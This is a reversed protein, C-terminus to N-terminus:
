IDLFSRIARAQEAKIEDKRALKEKAQKALTSIVSKKIWVYSTLGATLHTTRVDGNKAVDRTLQGKTFKRGMPTVLPIGEDLCEICWDLNSKAM